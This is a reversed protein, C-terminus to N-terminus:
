NKVQLNKSTSQTLRIEDTQYTETKLNQFILTKHLLYTVYDLFLKKLTTEKFFTKDSFSLVFLVFSSTTEKIFWVEDSSFFHFSFFLTSDYRLYHTCNERTLDARQFYKPHTKNLVKLSIIYDRNKRMTKRRCVVSLFFFSNQWKACCLCWCWCRVQFSDDFVWGTLLTLTEVKRGVIKEFPVSDLFFWPQNFDIQQINRLIRWMSHYIKSGIHLDLDKLSIAYNFFIHQCTLKKL